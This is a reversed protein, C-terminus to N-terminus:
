LFGHFCALLCLFIILGFLFFTLEKIWLLTHISRFYEVGKKIFRQFQIM